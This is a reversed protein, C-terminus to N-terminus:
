DHRFNFTSVVLSWWLRRRTLRKAQSPPEKHLGVQYALGVGIKLWFESNDCSFHAPGDPNLWQLMLTAKIAIIPNKEHNSWFLAKARQYFQESSAFALVGPSSSVRSAALFLSQLLLLSPPKDNRTELDSPDLIPTWPYCNQMFTDILSQRASRSPLEFSGWLEVTKLEVDSLEGRKSAHYSRASSEDIPTDQTIYHSRGIYTEAEDDVWAQPRADHQQDDSIIRHDSENTEAVDFNIAVDSHQQRSNTVDYESNTSNHYPTQQTTTNSNGEFGPWLVTAAGGPPSLSQMGVRHSVALPPQPALQSDALGVKDSDSEWSRGFLSQPSDLLQPRDRSPPSPVLPQAAKLRRKKRLRPRHDLVNAVNACSFTPSCSRLLCVRM